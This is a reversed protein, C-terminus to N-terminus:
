PNELMIEFGFSVVGMTLSIFWLCLVTLLKDNFQENPIVATTKPPQIRQGMVKIRDQVRCSHSTQIYENQWLEHIGAADLWKYINMINHSHPPLFGVLNLGFDLMEKSVYCERGVHQMAEFKKQATDLFRINAHWSRIQAKSNGFCLLELANADVVSERLMESLFKLKPVQAFNILEKKYPEDRAILTFNNDHLEKFTEIHKVLSPVALNAMLKGCYYFNLLFSFLLFSTLLFGRQRIPFSGLTPSLLALLLALGGSAYKQGTHRLVFFVGLITLALLIWIDTQQPSLISQVISLKNAKYKAVHDCYSFKYGANYRSALSVPDELRKQRWYQNLHMNKAILVEPGFLLVTPQGINQKSYSDYSFVMPTLTANAIKAIEKLFFCIPQLRDQVFSFDRLGQYRELLPLARSNLAVNELGM